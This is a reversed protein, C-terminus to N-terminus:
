KLLGKRHLYDELNSMYIIMEEIRETEITYEGEMNGKETFRKEPVPIREGKGLRNAYQRIYYTIIFVVLPVFIEGGIYFGGRQNYLDAGLYWMYYPLCVRLILSVNRLNSAIFDFLVYFAEKIIDLTITFFKSDTVWEGLEGCLEGFWSLFSKM